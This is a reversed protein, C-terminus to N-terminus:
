SAAIVVLEDGEKLNQENAFTVLMRGNQRQVNANVPRGAVKVTAKTGPLDLALTKLRLKGHRLLVGAQHPKQWLTGWGESATFAARFDGPNLRPAFGLHGRPGYFDFGCASVFVGHSAMGRAYHDSCEVENWPNRRSPHHRDYVAKVVRLSEDVLGEAMMHGAAQYETGTWVENFYMSAWTPNPGLIEARDGQPFTCVLLGAEGPLAYWRGAKQRDRWPGMDPLFNNRYLAKLAAKSREEGVIRGLGVQHAWGQGMLQDIECGNGIRMGDLHQEKNLRHIYYSGNWFVEDFRRAGRDFITRCRAAFVPDKMDKAMEEGARLAGLYLSSLWSSPGYLNVDLTNHQSGELIGDEDADERILYELAMKMRPYVRKLFADDPSTQHERLTRLIYGAQADAAYGTNYEARFDIVGGDEFGVGDKYDAMERISRELAPFLRGMSQAYQWVHGCTGDCCGIGEWAYFRGNEFRVCTMTALTSAPAMTRDLFWRPFTSDYWTEHWKRTAAYLDRYNTKLHDLVAGSTPFRAAYYHGVRGIKNLILNPFRWAVAFSVTKTEGPALNLETVVGSSPRAPTQVRVSEKDSSAFLANLPADGLDHVVRADADLIGLSIEGFDPADKLANTPQDVFSIQGVGIQGWFGPEDDVIELHATKGAFESVEFRELHLFDEQRGTASRVLKGDIVLGLYATKPHNGGGIWFEIFRRAITFDRSVLKGLMADGDINTGGKEIRYSKVIRNGPGGGVFDIGPVGSRDYPGKGFATGSATWGTFDKAHWDEFLISPRVNSDDHPPEAVAFNAHGALTRNERIAENGKVTHLGVPNEMWGGIEVKAATTGVNKLSYRMVVVPLSSDDEQLPVFPAFAELSVEVPCAPDRYTVFGMPYEGSFAIDSWAGSEFPLVKDGVKLAFGQGFPHVQEPPEVYNAGGGANISQGKYQITKDVTGFKIQNFIDWLWLRGDGGLYVQGACVGGVPMGVFRLDKGRFWERRGPDRLGSVQGKDIPVFKVLREAQALLPAGAVTLATLRLFDRRPITPGCQGGPCCAENRDKSPM